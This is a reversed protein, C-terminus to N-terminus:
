LPDTHGIVLNSVVNRMEFLVRVNILRRGKLVIYEFLRVWLQSMTREKLNLWLEDQQYPVNHHSLFPVIVFLDLSQFLPRKALEYCM